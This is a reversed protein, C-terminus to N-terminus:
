LAPEPTPSAWRKNLWHWTLIFIGLAILLVIGYVVTDELSVSLSDSVGGANDLMLYAVLNNVFHIVMGPIISNSKWYVWGIILGLLFAGVGQWPNLHAIAFIAASWIIAKAPSYNKLLGELIVGRFFIEELLPAAVVISLFLFINPQHVESMYRNFWDSGPIFSSVVSIVTSAAITMVAIVLIVQFPERNFKVRYEPMDYKRIRKLGLRAVIYLSVVYALLLTFSTLLQGYALGYERNLIMLVIYPVSLPISLLILRILLRFSQGINPYFSQPVEPQPSERFM